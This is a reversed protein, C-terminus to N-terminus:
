SSNLKNLPNWWLCFVQKSVGWNPHSLRNTAIDMYTVQHRLIHKLCTEGWLIPQKKKNISNVIDIPVPHIPSTRRPNENRIVPRALALFSLKYIKWNLPKKGTSKQGELGRWLWTIRWISALFRNKWKNIPILQGRKAIEGLWVITRRSGKMALHYGPLPWFYSQQLAKSSITGECYLVQM